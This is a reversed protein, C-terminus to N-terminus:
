PTVTMKIALNLEAELFRVRSTSLSKADNTNSYYLLSRYLEKNLSLDLMYEQIIMDNENAEDRLDKSPHM